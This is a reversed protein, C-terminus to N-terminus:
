GKPRLVTLSRTALSRIGTYIRQFQLALVTWVLKVIREIRKFLNIFFKVPNFQNSKSPEPVPPTKQSFLKDLTEALSFEVIDIHKSPRDSFDYVDIQHHLRNKNSVILRGEEVILRCGDDWGLYLFNAFPIFVTNRASILPLSTFKQNRINYIHVAMKSDNSRDLNYKIILYDDKFLLRPKIPDRFVKKCIEQKIDSDDLKWINLDGNENIEAIRTDDFACSQNCSLNSTLPKIEKKSLNLLYIKSAFDGFYIKPPFPPLALTVPVDILLWQHNLLHVKQVQPTNWPPIGQVFSRVDYSGIRMDADNKTIDWIVIRGQFSYALLHDRFSLNWFKSSSIDIPINPVPDPKIEKFFDGTKREFLQISNSENAIAVYDPSLAVAVPAFSQNLKLKIPEATGLLDIQISLDASDFKFGLIQDQPNIGLQLFLQHLSLENPIAQYARKTCIGKEWFYGLKFRLAWSGNQTGKAKWDRRCRKEFEKNATKQWYKCVQSARCLSQHDLWGFISQRIDPLWFRDNIDM